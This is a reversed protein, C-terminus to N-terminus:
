PDRGLLALPERSGHAGWSVEHCDSRAEAGGEKDVTLHITLSAVFHSHDCVTM